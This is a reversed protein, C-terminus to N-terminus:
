ALRGSAQCEQPMPNKKPILVVLAQNLYHLGQHNLSFFQNIVRMLDPLILDCCSKFFIGIFGNPGPAKM